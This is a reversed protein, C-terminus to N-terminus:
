RNKEPEASKEPAAPQTAEPGGGPQMESAPPTVGPTYRDARVVPAPHAVPPTAGGTAGAAGPAAALGPLAEAAADAARQMEEVGAADQGNVSGAADHTQTIVLVEELRSLNAAPRLMVMIYPPHQPDPAVKEVDGVALGRPFVQDGGSTLVREGPKIREDPLLDIVQPQGAANGRLIGRIRTTELIV